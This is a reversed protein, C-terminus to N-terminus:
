RRYIVKQNVIWSSYIQKLSDVLKQLNDAYYSVDNYTILKNDNDIERNVFAVEEEIKGFMGIFKMFDDNSLEALFHDESAENLKIVKM